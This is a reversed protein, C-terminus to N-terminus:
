QQPGTLVQALRDGAWGWTAGPPCSVMCSWRSSSTSPSTCWCSSASTGVPTRPTTRSRGPLAGLPPTSHSSKPSSLMCPEQLLRHWGLQQLAALSTGGARALGTTKDAPCSAGACRLAGRVQTQLQQSARVFLKIFPDSATLIDMRPVHRAELVRVELLGRPRDVSGADGDLFSLTYRALCHSPLACFPRMAASLANVNAGHQRGRCSAPQRAPAPRRAWREPLVFPRMVSDQILAQLLPLWHSCGRRKSRAPM